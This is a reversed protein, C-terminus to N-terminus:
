VVSGALKREGSKRLVASVSLRWPLVGCPAMLEALVQNGLDM